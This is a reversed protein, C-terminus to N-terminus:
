RVNGMASEQLAPNPLAESPVTPINPMGPLPGTTPPAVVEGQPTMSTNLNEPPPPSQPPNAAQISQEGIIALTEPPVNKLLEMHENIHDLVAKVIVPNKRLETDALAGRHGKIHMAHQDTAIAPTYQGNTLEENEDKILLLERQTDDTMTDLRGTLMISMYQEPTKIIGYQILESAIQLKGSTTSALPNGVDVIVRNVESLDSGSFEKTVYTRNDKGAILAIRPVSAYDKLINVLGTGVDELMQVYAQQLGSIFQLAMSQVLALAAGSKLSAEPNGRAVSNVGSITEASAELMRIFNFVEPPTQTFNIPEPKGAMGNGEIINLGGEISKINIDAGRPVYISQVGFTHQNTFIVSYLANIADQIPLVDFLDTYGYPTGLITSPSIRYVPIERYPMPTDLLVLGGDLFLLYRGDPLAETKKHYFEYIPIDDTEDLPSNDFRFNFLESKTKMGEIKDKFEPYKAAVDYKNKFTRCLVWDHQTNEKTPDFVVDFPSLNTFEIDGEYINTKTDEIYDYIEGSTANWGLKVYGSAQAVASEVANHLFKELRKERLYYDLLDNALKTQAMSKYDTNTARAQFAPRNSVVMTIIHRAINRLHNVPLNVLEGQEGGFSIEHSSTFYAGHYAAWMRKLKDLYGNSHLGQYWNNAKGLLINATKEAEESAFYAM